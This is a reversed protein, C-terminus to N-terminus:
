SGETPDKAGLAATLAAESIRGELVPRGDEALLVPVRFDYLRLLEPDTDVYVVEYAAGFRDLGERAEDCLHCGQRTVLKLLM